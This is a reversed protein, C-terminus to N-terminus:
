ERPRGLSALNHLRRAAITRAMPEDMRQFPSVTYKTYKDGAAGLRRVEFLWKDLGYKDRAALVSAFFTTGGEIVKLANEAVVFFNLAIRFSPRHGALCHRCAPSTCPSGRGDVWHLERTVPAGLFAGVVSDGDNRLRVFLSTAQGPRAPSGHPNSSNTM